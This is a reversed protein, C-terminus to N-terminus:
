SLWSQSVNCKMNRSKGKSRQFTMACVFMQFTKLLSNAQIVLGLKEQGCFLCAIPVAPKDIETEGDTM